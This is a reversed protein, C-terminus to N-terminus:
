SVLIIDEYKNKFIKALEKNDKSNCPKEIVINEPKIGMQIFTELVFETSDINNIDTKYAQGQDSISFDVHIPYLKPEKGSGGQIGIEDGIKLSQGKKVSISELHAYRYYKGSSEVIVYNGYGQSGSSQYGISSVIGQTLSPVSIGTTKTKRYLTFDTASHLKSSDYNRYFCSSIKLKYKDLDSAINDKNIKISAGDVSNTNLNIESNGENNQKELYAKYKKVEEDSCESDKEDCNKPIVKDCDKGYLECNQQYKQQNLLADDNGILSRTYEGLNAISPFVLILVITLIIIAM